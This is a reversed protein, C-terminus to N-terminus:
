TQYFFANLNKSYLVISGDRVNASLVKPKSLNSDATYILADGSSTVRDLTKEQLLLGKRIEKM